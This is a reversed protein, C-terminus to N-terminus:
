LYGVFGPPPPPIQGNPFNPIPTPPAPPVNRPHQAFYELAGYLRKIEAKGMRGDHDVDYRAVFEKANPGSMRDKSSINLLGIARRDARDIVNDHNGDMAKILKSTFSRTSPNKGVTPHPAPKPPGVPKRGPDGPDPLTPPAPPHCHSPELAEPAPVPAQQV